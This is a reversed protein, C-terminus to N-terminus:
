MILARYIAETKLSPKIGLKSILIGSCHDYVAIARATQGLRHHCTMLRQFLEEDLIEGLELANQYYYSAMEWQNMAEFHSGVKIILRFFRRKIRERIPMVWPQKDEGQLFSGKYLNVAEEALGVIVEDVEGSVTGAGVTVKLRTDAQDLLEELRWLDAMEDFNYIFDQVKQADLDSDIIKLLPAEMIPPATLPSWANTQVDGQDPVREVSGKFNM